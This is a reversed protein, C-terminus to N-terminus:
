KLNDNEKVEEGVGRAQYQQYERNIKEYALIGNHVTEKAEDGSHERSAKKEAEEQEEQMIIEQLQELREEDGNTWQVEFKKCVEPGLKKVFERVKPM